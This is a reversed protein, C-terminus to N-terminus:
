YIGLDFIFARRYRNQNLMFTFASGNAISAVIEASESSLYTQILYGFTRIIENDTPRFNPISQTLAEVFRSSGKFDSYVRTEGYKEVIFKRLNEDESAIFIRLQPDIEVDSLKQLIQEITPQRAHRPPEKETYETGRYFLTLTNEPDWRILEKCKLLVDKVYDNLIIYKEVLNGLQQIKQSELMFRLGQDSLWHNPLLRDGSSLVRSCDYYSSNEHVSSLPQFFYEWANHTKSLFYSRNYWTWYNEMDVTPILGLQEARIIGQLVHNVNSFLGAGPPRRRIVFYIPPSGNINKVTESFQLQRRRLQTKAILNWINEPLISKTKYKLFQGYNM